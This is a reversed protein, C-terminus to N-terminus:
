LYYIKHLGIYTNKEVLLDNIIDGWILKNYRANVGISKTSFFLIFHFLLHDNIILVWMKLTHPM